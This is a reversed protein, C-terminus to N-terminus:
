HELKSRKAPPESSHPDDSSSSPPPPAGSAGGPAGSNLFGSASMLLDQIGNFYAMVAAPRPKEESGPLLDDLVVDQLRQMTYTRTTPEFRVIMFSRQKLTELSKRLKQFIKKLDIPNTGQRLKGDVAIGINIYDPQSCFRLVCYREPVSLRMLTQSSVAMVYGENWLQKNVQLFDGISAFWTFIRLFRQQNLRAHQHIERFEKWDPERCTSSINSEPLYFSHVWYHRLWFELHEWNAERRLGYECDDPDASFPGLTCDCILQYEADSTQPGALDGSRLFNKKGRKTVIWNRYMVATEAVKMKVGTNDFQILLSDESLVELVTCPSWDPKYVLLAGPFYSGSQEPGRSQLWAVNTIEKCRRDTGKRSIIGIPVYLLRSTFDKLLVNWPLYSILRPDFSLRFALVVIGCDTRRGKKQHELQGFNVNGLFHFTEYEGGAGEKTGAGGDSAPSAESASSSSTSSPSNSFSSTSSPTSGVPMTAPSVSVTAETTWRHLSEKKAIEGAFSSFFDDQEHPPNHLTSITNSCNVWDHQTNALAHIEVRMWNKLEAPVDSVSSLGFASAIAVLSSKPVSVAVEVGISINEGGVYFLRRVTVPCGLTAKLGTAPGGAMAGTQAVPGTALHPPLDSPEHYPYSYSSPGASSSSSSSVPASPQPNYYSQLTQPHSPVSPPSPHMMQQPYSFQQHHQQQHHQLQQIQQHHMYQQQSVQQQQLQQLPQLQQTQQFSQSQLHSPFSMDGYGYQGGLSNLGYIPGTPSAYPVGGVMQGQGGNNNNNGGIGGQQLNLSAGSSSSFPTQNNPEYMPEMYDRLFEDLFDDEHSTQVSFNNEFTDNQQLGNNFPFM